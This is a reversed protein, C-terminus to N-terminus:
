HQDQPQHPEGGQYKFYQVTSEQDLFPDKTCTLTPYLDMQTDLSAMTKWEVQWVVNCINIGFRAQFKFDLNWSLIVLDM